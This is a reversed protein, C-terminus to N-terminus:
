PTPAGPGNASGPPPGSLTRKTVLDFLISALVAAANVALTVAVHQADTLSVGFATVLALVSNVFAIIAASLTM